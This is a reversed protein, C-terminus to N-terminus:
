HYMVNLVQSYCATLESLTDKYKPLRIAEAYPYHQDSNFPGEPVLAISMHKNIEIEIPYAPHLFFNVVTLVPDLVVGEHDLILSRFVLSPLLQPM